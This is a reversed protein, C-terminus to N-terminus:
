DICADRGDLWKTNVYGDILKDVTQTWAGCGLSPTCRSGGPNMVSAVTLQVGGLGYFTLEALQVSVIRPYELVRIQTINFRFNHAMVSLWSLLERQLTSETKQAHQVTLILLSCHLALATCHPHHLKTTAPRQDPASADPRARAQDPAGRGSLSATASLYRVFSVLDVASGDVPMSISLVM